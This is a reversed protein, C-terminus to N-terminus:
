EYARSPHSRVITYHTAKELFKKVIWFAEDYSLEARAESHQVELESSPCLNFSSRM